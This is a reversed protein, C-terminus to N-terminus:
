RVYAAKEKFPFRLFQKIKGIGSYQSVLDAVKDTSTLSYSYSPKYTTTSAMNASWGIDSSSAASGTCNIFSNGSLNWYGIEDSDLSCVPNKVNKFVNNEVYIEAGMRSNVASTGVNEYYNNYVHGHGFRFLPLRSNCDKFYNHHYTINRDYNDTDSYGCLSTKWSDHFYNWSYTINKCDKKIDLLGDYDDKESENAPNYYNYLECHDVWINSTTEFSICDGEGAGKKVHHIKMNQVIVNECRVFRIGIGSFEGNTGVGIVSVNKTDKFLIEDTGANDLTVTGNVYITIPETSKAKERARAISDIESGTSVTVTEGGQGGTTSAGFGALKFLSQIDDDVVPTTESPTTTTAPTTTEAPTTQVPTTTEAPVSSGNTLDAGMGYYKSTKKLELFGHTNISGDENRWLTHVDAGIAPADLSVFDSAAPGNDETGTKSNAVATKDTILWYKKSNYFLTDEANGNLKDSTGSANAYSLLNIFTGSNCRDFQFNAGSEQGNAYSTINQATSFEPNNNDTFGHKKNEFSICNKIIHPTGVGGGGLKFGNGDSNDTFVGTATQGNRFSICNQITVAGIPGTASKAYMDWGDDVNNYAICGDFVNGPGCTLKPAFGDANEGTAPDMNNYSTCNLILNYSPWDAIDSLDSSRRSIQLGTDRNAELRCM